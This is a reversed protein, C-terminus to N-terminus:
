QGNRRIQSVRSRTLGIAAAIENGNWGHRCALEAIAQQREDSMEAILQFYKRIMVGANVARRVLQQADDDPEGSM